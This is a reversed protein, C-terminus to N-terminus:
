TRPQSSVSPTVQSRFTSIADRYAEVGQELSAADVSIGRAGSRMVSSVDRANM